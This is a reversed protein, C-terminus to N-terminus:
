KANTETGLGKALEARGYVEFRMLRKHSARERSTIEFQLGAGRDASGYEAVSQRIAQSGKASRGRCWRRFRSYPAVQRPDCPCDLHALQLQDPVTLLPLFCWEEAHPGPPRMLKPADGPM